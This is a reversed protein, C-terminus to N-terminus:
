FIRLFSPFDSNALIHPKPNLAYSPVPSFTPITRSCICLPAAMAPRHRCLPAPPARGVQQEHRHDCSSRRPWLQRRRHLDFRLREQIPPGSICTGVCICTIIELLFQSCVLRPVVTIRGRFNAVAPRVDRKSSRSDVITANSPLVWFEQASDSTAQSDLSKM